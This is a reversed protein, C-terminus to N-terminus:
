QIKKPAVEVCKQLSIEPSLRAKQGTAFGTWHTHSKLEKFLLEVQWRCRYVAMIDDATFHSPPLIPNLFFAFHFGVNDRIGM